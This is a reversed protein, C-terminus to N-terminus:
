KLSFNKEERERESERESKSIRMKKGEAPSFNAIVHTEAVAGLM